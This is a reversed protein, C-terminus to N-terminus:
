FFDFMFNPAYWKWESLIIVFFQWRRIGRFLYVCVFYVFILQVISLFCLFTRTFRLFITKKKSIWCDWASKEDGTRVVSAEAAVMNPKQHCNFCGRKTAACDRAINAHARAARGTFHPAIASNGREQPQKSFLRSQQNWLPTLYKNNLQRRKIIM